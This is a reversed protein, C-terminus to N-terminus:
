NCVICFSQDLWRLLSEFRRACAFDTVRPLLQSLAQKLPGGVLNTKERERLSRFIRMSQSRGLPTIQRKKVLRMSPKLPNIGFININKCLVSLKDKPGCNIDFSINRVCAHIVFECKIPKCGISYAM